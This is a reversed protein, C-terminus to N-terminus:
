EYAFKQKEFAEASALWKKQNAEFQERVVSLDISLAEEILEVSREM